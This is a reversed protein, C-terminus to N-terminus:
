VVLWWVDGRNGATLIDRLKLLDFLRALFQKIDQMQIWIAQFPLEVEYFNCHLHNARFFVDYFTKDELEKALAQVYNWLKAHSKLTIEKGTAVAKVAEAVSECLFEGAMEHEKVELLKVANKFYHINQNAYKEVETAVESERM